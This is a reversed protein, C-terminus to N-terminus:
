RLEELREIFSNYLKPHLVSITQILEDILDIAKDFPKGDILRMFESDGHVNIKEDIMNDGSYGREIAPMSEKVPYMHDMLTYIAAIKEVNQISHRGEQLQNIADELEAKRFM